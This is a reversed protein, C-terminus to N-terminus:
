RKFLDDIYETSSQVHDQYNNFFDRDEHNYDPVFDEEDLLVSLDLSSYMYELDSEDYPINYEDVADRLLEFAIDDARYREELMDQLKRSGSIYDHLNGHWFEKIEEKLEFIIPENMLSPIENIIKSLILFEDHDLSSYNNSKIACQILHIYFKHSFLKPNQITLWYICEGLFQDYDLSRIDCNLFIESDVTKVKLKENLSSKLLTGYLHVAYNNLGTKRIKENLRYLVAQFTEYDIKNNFYLSFLANTSSYSSLAYIYLAIAEVNKSFRNLLYDSISPSFPTLRAVMVSKSKLYASALTRNLTSQLSERVLYDIKNIKTHFQNPYKVEYVRKLANKCQDESIVNNNFVVLSVLDLMEEPSQNNFCKEWIIEPNDLSKMIYAWYDSKVIDGVIDLDTIFSIIRPNFNKHNIVKWYNQNEYFVDSQETSKLGHWIHNYLIRAKEIDSLESVNLEFERKDLKEISFVESLNKARNLINTRSTLIIKKSPDSIIRKIFNVIKSDSNGSFIELYNSGLFDDFYFFQKVDKLYISEVESISDEIHYIDYGKKVHWLMLQKALTTKGVGPLGTIILANNNSLIKAAEKLQQTEIFKYSENLTSEVLYNSKQNVGNNLISILLNSSSLWLKFHNIEVKPHEKILNNIDEMGIVDTDNIIYPSFINKIENKNSPSLGVSTVFIYRSPSLKKVKSAEDKKLARILGDYGTAAYHKAQIIANGNHYFRGDIGGDKGTKFREIIRNERKSLLDIVLAEFEKDNLAKFDYDNM